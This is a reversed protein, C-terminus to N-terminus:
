IKKLYYNVLWMYTSYPYNIGPDTHNTKHFAASINAHSTIGHKGSKLDEVSLFVAPIKYWKCRLASKYATRRITNLHIMWRKRSWESYGCQEIHFGNSNLPPAGWPIISDILTKYCHWDDIVLHASGGSNHTTFYRAISRADNDTPKIDNPSQTAHIVIYKIQSALRSGSQHYATFETSCSKAIGVSM